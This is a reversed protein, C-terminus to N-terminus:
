RWEGQLEFAAWYYPAHWRKDRTMEVKAAQLAAAPRMGEKLMGRYFIKMLEATAEDDVKWLSAVVRKSGAYMFGRVLGVLGEGKVQKGLATQCASLVVLEAPLQLNYIENLRLFGDVTHGREDILSLVIGSLEPHENNLLGHTAFHLIRYRSMEPGIAVNRSARFDLAKFAEGPALELIAEAEARSFPLRRIKSPNDSFSIGFDRTARELETPLHNKRRVDGAQAVQHNNTTAYIKGAKDVNRSIVRVRADDEDYVPDAFVALPQSAEKRGSLERRQLALVSASPSSVIEHTAVLLQKSDARGKATAPDILAAFPIYQLTGDSVVLLRKTGLQAAIPSLVMESLRQAAGQYQADAASARVRKQEITEGAKRQNRTTLLDYVKRAAPEIEARKPLEYSTVSEPTVAWLFSKEDGLAYELLITNADVVEKQIDRLSLPGPQPAVDDRLRSQRIRGRVEDYELQLASIEKEVTAAQEGTLHGANLRTQYEAKENLSKLLKREREFLTRDVDHRTRERAEALLELMVRARARESANLAAAGYGETPREKELQMLVGIYFEYHEQANAFFSARLEDRTIKARKSEIITLAAEVHQAAAPLNGQDRHVRAIRYLLEAESLESEMSRMLSLAQQFYELARQKEDLSEHYFRGLLGLMGAEGLRFNMSRHVQLARNYHDLAKEKNGLLEYIRASASLVAAEGRRDVAARVLPLAQQFYKLASQKDGAAVYYCGIAYLHGGEVRPDGVKRALRLAQFHYDLGTKQEGLAYYTWGLGSLAITELERDRLERALQLAEESYELSTHYETVDGYVRAANNLATAEARRDGVTRWLALAEEAKEVIRQRSDATGDNQLMVTEADAREAAIRGSDQPEAARLETLKVEYRGAPVDGYLTRMGLRYDGSEEAILSVPEPGLTGNPSDVETVKRGGPSVLTVVVDVGRQDFMIRAYQGAVLAIRYTHTEGGAMKREIPKGLELSPIEDNTQAATPSRSPVIEQPSSQAPSARVSLAPLHLLLFVASTVVINELSTRHPLCTPTAFSNPDAM